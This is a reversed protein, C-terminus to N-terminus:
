PPVEILYLSVTRLGNPQNMDNFEGPEPAQTWRRRIKDAYFEGTGVGGLADVPKDNPAVAADSLKGLVVM